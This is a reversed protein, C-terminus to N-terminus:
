CTILDIAIEFWNKRDDLGAKFSGNIRKTVKDVTLESVGSIKDLVRDKFYWMASLIGIEINSEILDPNLLFDHDSSIYSSYFNTFGSYNDKGTLQFAGRGRYKYGDGSSESGNGNKQSYVLNALKEPNRLYDNPNKKNPDTLSFKSPFVKLLREPTTYYLNESFGASSFGNTEHGAQSIFHSVVSEDILGFEVGYANILDKLVSLITPDGAPFIQSLETEDIECDIETPNEEEEECEVTVGELNGEPMECNENTNPPTGGGGGGGGSDGPAAPSFVLECEVSGLTTGINIP